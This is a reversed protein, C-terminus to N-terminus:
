RFVMIKISAAQLLLEQHQVLVMSSITVARMLKSPNRMENNALRQTMIHAPVRTACLAKNRELAKDAAAGLKETAAGVIRPYLIQRETDSHKGALTPYM